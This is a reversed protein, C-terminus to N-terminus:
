QPYVYITKSTRGPSKTTAHTQSDHTQTRSTSFDNSADFVGSIAVCNILDNQVGDNLVAPAVCENQEKRLSYNTMIQSNMFCLQKVASPPVGCKKWCVLIQSACKELKKGNDTLRDITTKRKRDGNAILIENIENSDLYWNFFQEM